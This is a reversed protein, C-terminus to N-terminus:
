STKQRNKKSTDVRLTRRCKPCQVLWGDEQRPEAEFSNSCPCYAIVKKPKKKRSILKKILIVIGKIVYGIGTVIHGLLEGIDELLKGGLFILLIIVIIILLITTM